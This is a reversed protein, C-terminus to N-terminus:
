NPLELNYCGSECISKIKSYQTISFYLARRCSLEIIQDTYTKRLNLVGLVIKYWSHPNEKVILAFLAKTCEGIQEMEKSYKNLYDVYISFSIFM